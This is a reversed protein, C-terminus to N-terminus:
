QRTTSRQKMTNRLLAWLLCLRTSGRWTSCLCTWTFLCAGLSCFSFFVFVRTVSVQLRESDPGPIHHSMNWAKDNLYGLICAEPLVIADAGGDKADIIADEIRKFNGERDSPLIVIQGIAVRVTM